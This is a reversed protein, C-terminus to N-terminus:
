TKQAVIFFQHFLVDVYGDREILQDIELLKDFYKEVSFGPIEWPIAKLYYVIAGVDYYRTTFFEEEQDGIQWGADQLEQVAYALNWATKQEGGPYFTDKPEYDFLQHLRRNTQDGVQQTIFRQGSKLIRLVEHPDYSAHRNIILGFQEDAFPLHQDDDIAVVTVDLPELRQRAVAINPAYGETAYIHNPLPQITALSALREGGGTGMDLMTEIGHMAALVTETYDWLHEAHLDVSRGKLYSMDWGAFPMNYEAVLYQYFEDSTMHHPM